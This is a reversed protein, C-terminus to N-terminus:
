CKKKLIKNYKQNLINIQYVLCAKNIKKEEEKQM